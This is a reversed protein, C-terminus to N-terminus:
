PAVAVPKPRVALVFLSALLLLVAVGVIAGAYSGTRAFVLGAAPVALVAFPLNVLNVLGYARGFGERGFRESLAVGLVPLIGAGHVGILAVIIALLAFPPTLLMLLWLLAGDFAIIALALRGGIRDAVWGFFLTGAIGASSQITLLTAALTASIGWSHAMPVMHATIVISASTSAIFALAPAVFRPSSALGIMTVAPRPAAEPAVQAAGSPSSAFEPGPPRDVIFLNALVTVGSLAALLVYTGAVGYAQLSWSAALPVLAIVIPANVIGL